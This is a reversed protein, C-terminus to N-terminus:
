PLPVTLLSTSATTMPEPAKPALAAKWRALEALLDGQHVAEREAGLRRGSRGAEGLLDPRL